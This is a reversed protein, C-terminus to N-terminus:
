LYLSFSLCSGSKCSGRRVREDGHLTFHTHSYLPSIHQSFPSSFPFSHLSVLPSNTLPPPHSVSFVGLTKKRAIGPQVHVTSYLIYLAAGPICQLSPVTWFHKCLVARTSCQHKRYLTCFITCICCLSLSANNTLLVTSHKSNLPVTAMPGFPM